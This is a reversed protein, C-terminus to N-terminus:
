STTIQFEVEYSNNRYVAQLAYGYTGKLDLQFNIYYNGGKVTTYIGSGIRDLSGHCGSGSPHFRLLEVRTGDPLGAAARGQVVTNKGAPINGMPAMAATGSPWQSLNPKRTFGCKDLKSASATPQAGQSPSAVGTLAVALVAASVTYILARRRM